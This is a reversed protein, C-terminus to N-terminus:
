LPDTKAVGMRHCAGLDGLETCTARKERTIMMQISYVSTFKRNGVAATIDNVSEQLETDASHYPKDLSGVRVYAPPDDDSLYEPRDKNEVEDKDTTLAKFM